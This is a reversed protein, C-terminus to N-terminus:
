FETDYENETVPIDKRGDPDNEIDMEQKVQELGDQSWERRGVYKKRGVNGCMGQSAM